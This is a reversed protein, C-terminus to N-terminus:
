RRYRNHVAWENNKLINSRHDMWCQSLRLQYLRRLYTVTIASIIHDTIRVLLRAANAWGPLMVSFCKRSRLLSYRIIHCAMTCFYQGCSILVMKVRNRLYTSNTFVTSNRLCSKHLSQGSMELEQEGCPRTLRLLPSPLMDCELIKPLRVHTQLSLHYWLPSYDYTSMHLVVRVAQHYPMRGNPQALSCAACLTILQNLRNEQVGHITINGSDRSYSYPWSERQKLLESKFKYLQLNGHPDSMVFHTGNRPCTDNQPSRFCLMRLFELM